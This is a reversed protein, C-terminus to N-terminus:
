PITGFWKELMEKSRGSILVTKSGLHSLEKILRKLEPNPRAGILNTIKSDRLTGDYDLYISTNASAGIFDSVVHDTQKATM